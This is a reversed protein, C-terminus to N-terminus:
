NGGLTSVNSNQSKQLNSSAQTCARHGTSSPNNKLFDEPEQIKYESKTLYSQLWASGLSSVTSEDEYLLAPISNCAAGFGQAIVRNDHDWRVSETKVTAVGKVGVQYAPRAFITEGPTDRHQPTTM